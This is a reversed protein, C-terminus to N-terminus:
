SKIYFATILKSRLRAPLRWGAHMGSFGNLWNRHSSPLFCGATQFIGVAKAGTGVGSVSGDTVPTMFKIFVDLRVRPSFEKMLMM